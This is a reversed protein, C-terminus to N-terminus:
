RRAHGHGAAVYGAHHPTDRARYRRAFPRRQHGRMGDMQRWTRKCSNARVHQAVATSAGSPVSRHGARTNGLQALSRQRRDSRARVGNNRRPSVPTTVKRREWRGGRDARRDPGTPRGFTLQPQRRASQGNVQRRRGRPPHGGLSRDQGRRHPLRRRGRRRRGRVKVATASGTSSVPQAGIRGAHWNGEVLAHLVCPQSPTRGPWPRM